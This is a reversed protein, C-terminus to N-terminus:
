SRPTSGRHVARSSNRAHGPQCRPGMVEFSESFRPFNAGTSCAVDLLTHAEPNRLQIERILSDAESAPDRGRAGHIADYFRAAEQYMRCHDWKPLHARSM